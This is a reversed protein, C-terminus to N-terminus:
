IKRQLVLISDKQWAEIWENTSLLSDKLRILEDHTIPYFSIGNLQLLIYEADKIEPFLYISKRLAAHPALHTQASLRAEVPILNIAEAVTGPPTHERYHRVQYFRISAHDIFANSYDFIRFSTLVTFGVALYAFMMIKKSTVFSREVRHYSMKLQTSFLDFTGIVIIPVFEIAYQGGLGWFQPNDTLLKQAYLPVCMWLYAPRFLLIWGGSALLLLHFEAKIYDGGPVHTHNTFFVNMLDVPHAIFNEIASLPTSGLVKYDRVHGIVAFSYHPMFWQTLFLFYATSLIIFFGLAIATQKLEHPIFIGLATKGGSNRRLRVLNFLLGSCVFMMWLSMNEKAAIIFVFIISAWLWKQKKMCVFFWPLLMAACVNSHYDFSLATFIGFSFYFQVQALLSLTRNQSILLVYKYIGFGGAIIATLQLLLLTYSGFLFVLPSFIVLWLDIHEGGAFILSKDWNGHAYNYLANTYIGLDNYYTRFVYHNVLSILIYIIGAVCPIVVEPIAYKYISPRQMKKM